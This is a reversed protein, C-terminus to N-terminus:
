HSKVQKRGVQHGLGSSTVQLGAVADDFRWHKHRDAGLGGDFCRRRGFEMFHASLNYESVSVMKEQTGPEFDDTFHSSKMAEHIPISRNQGVASTELHEREGLQTSDRFFADVEIIM